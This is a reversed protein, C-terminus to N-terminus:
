LTARIQDYTFVTTGNSQSEGLDSAKSLAGYKIDLSITM